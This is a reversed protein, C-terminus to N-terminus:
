DILLIIQSEKVSNIVLEGIKETHWGSPVMIIDAWIFVTGAMSILLVLSLSLEQLGLSCSSCCAKKLNWMVVQPVEALTLGRSSCIYRSSTEAEEANETKNEQGLEWSSGTKLVSRM